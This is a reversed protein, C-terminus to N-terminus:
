LNENGKCPSSATKSWAIAVQELISAGSDNNASFDFDRSQDDIRSIQVELTCRLAASMRDSWEVLTVGEGEAYEDYGLDTLDDVRSLRYLDFHYLPLRGYYVNLLTYTPSTVSLESSLQLGEGVGQAFCTKGAALSGNLLLVSGAKVHTGFLKGLRRTDAASNTTTHWKYL